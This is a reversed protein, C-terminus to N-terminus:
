VHPFKTPLTSAAEIVGQLTVKYCHKVVNPGVWTLGSIVPSGPQCRLIMFGKVFSAGSHTRPSGGLINVHGRKQDQGVPM